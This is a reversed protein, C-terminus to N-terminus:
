RNPCHTPMGHQCYFCDARHCAANIEGVVRKGLLHRYQEQAVDSYIEEVVGVFEHGLVGQFDMYGHIIELDTNCIGAQLVRILAEGEVLAPDPYHPEFTLSHNEYVLARM